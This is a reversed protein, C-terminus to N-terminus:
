GLNAGDARLRRQLAAVDVARPAVHAALALDAAPGAAQGLVFCPGWVRASSQGDHTLSACRGVVLLNEVMLPVM